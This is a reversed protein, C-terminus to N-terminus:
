HEMSFKCVKQNCRKFMSNSMSIGNLRKLQYYFLKEMLTMHGNELLIRFIVLYHFRWSLYFYLISVKHESVLSQLTLDHDFDIQKTFSFKKNWFGNEVAKAVSQHTCYVTQGQNTIKAPGGPVPSYSAM